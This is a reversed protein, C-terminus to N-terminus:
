ERPNNRRWVTKATEMGVERASVASVSSTTQVSPKPTVYQEAQSVLSRMEQIQFQPKRIYKFFDTWFM